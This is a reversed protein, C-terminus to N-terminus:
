KESQSGRPPKMRFKIREQVEPEGLNQLTSIPDKVYQGAISCQIARALSSEDPVLIDYEPTMLVCELERALVCIQHVLELSIKRADVRFAIEEIANKNEDTYCVYADDGDQKGWM